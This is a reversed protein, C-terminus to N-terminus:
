SELVEEGVRRDEVDDRVEDHGQLRWSRYVLALLLVTIGFTIVIATLAMAQPLPDAFAEPAHGEGTIPPDGPPGAAMLVLLNTSHGLVLFGFLLRMLSRQLLLHFGVAFLGGVVLATTLDLARM